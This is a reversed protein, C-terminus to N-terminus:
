GLRLGRQLADLDKLMADQREGAALLADALALTDPSTALCFRSCSNVDRVTLWVSGDPANTVNWRWPVVATTMETPFRLTPPVDDAPQEAQESM